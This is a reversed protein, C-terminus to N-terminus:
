LPLRVANVPYQGTVPDKRVYDCFVAKSGGQESLLGVARPVGATRPFLRSLIRRAEHLGKGEQRLAAPLVSTKTSALRDTLILNRLLGAQEPLYETLRAYVLNTLADLSLPGRGEEEARIAKGLLLFLECPRIGAEGTLYKLTGMFRGSNHMRDLAREMLHLASLDEGSMSPTSMVEYPPLPDFACPYTEPEERMASGHLLKLFGLQLEHPRLLYAADFGRLFMELSEGPLGAILDLHVRARGCAILRRTMEILRKMDTRRRVRRLTDEQISQLGIEFRFLGPPAASIIELTEGDLLDGAIEFHFVVPGPIGKGAEGAIFRLLAKARARDANFTRDVFKITQTGSNALLLIERFARDLSCARPRDGRGSLCFACSFPCGRSTEIYAIRGNLARLYESGVPSPWEGNPDAPPNARVGGNERFCLGPIEETGGAGCLADALMALPREGEGSIIFDAEPCAKLTKEAHFSVEPGGLVIVCNPLAARLPPLLGAVATINWISCSIGLLDPRSVFIRDLLGVPPENVTGEVVHAEHPLAAYAKLGAKLCYPALSSHVYQSAIGLLTIRLPLEKLHCWGEGRKRLDMSDCGPIFLCLGERESLGALSNVCQIWSLKLPCLGRVTITEKPKAPRAPRNACCNMGQM